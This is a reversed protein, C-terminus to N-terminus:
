LVSIFPSFRHFILHFALGSIKKIKIKNNNNNLKTTNRKQKEQKELSYYNWMKITFHPFCSLEVGWFIFSFFLLFITHLMYKYM